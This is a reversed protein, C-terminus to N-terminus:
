GDKLMQGFSMNMMFGNQPTKRSGSQVSVYLLIRLRVGVVSDDNHADIRREIKCVDTINLFPSHRIGKM